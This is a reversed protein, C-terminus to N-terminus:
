EPTETSLITSAERMVDLFKMNEKETGLSVRISNPISSSCDLVLIKHRKLLELTKQFNKLVLMIFNTESKFVKLIGKLPSLHRILEDRDKKIKEWSLFTEESHYLREIAKVQSFSSFGFPLQTYRLSNVILEDAIVIGCRIGALGWAKSLTRLVILNPYKNLCFISSSTKSFEIYAEDVVVFGELSDCLEEILGLDLVTGTPNNPNCLFVMKPSIKLIDELSFSSLTKGRLPINQVNLNHVLAWHEYASFTPQIVCIVDKNPEAFTRLLLDIGELSGVTFLLNEPGLAASSDYTFVSPQNLSLIKELYVEKLKTHKVDPYNSLSGLYPNTNNSLDIDWEESFFHKKIPTPISLSSVIQRTKQHILM